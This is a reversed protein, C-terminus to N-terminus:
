LSSYQRQTGSQYVPPSPQDALPSQPQMSILVADTVAGAHGPENFAWCGHAAHVTAILSAWDSAKGLGAASDSVAAYSGRSVQDPLLLSVAGGAQSRGVMGVRRTGALKTM